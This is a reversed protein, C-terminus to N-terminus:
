YTSDATLDPTAVAPGPADDDSPGHDSDTTTSGPEPTSRETITGDDDNQDPGRYCISTLQQLLFVIFPYNIDTTFNSSYALYGPTKTFTFELLWKGAPREEFMWSLCSPRRM